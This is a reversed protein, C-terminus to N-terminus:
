GNLVARKRSEAVLEKVLKLLLPGKSMLAMVGRKEYDLIVDEVKGVLGLYKDNNL